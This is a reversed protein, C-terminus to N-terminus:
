PLGSLRWRLLSRSRSVDDHLGVRPLLAPDDATRVRGKRVTVGVEFTSRVVEASAADHVGRPYAFSTVSRGIADELWQKAGRIERGLDEPSCGVLERHSWTHCGVELGERAANRLRSVTAFPEGSRAYETVAFVTAPMGMDRLVPWAEEVADLWGDDFTIALMPKAGLNEDGRAWSSVRALTVVEYHRAFERAHLLFSEASVVMGPHSSAYEARGRPLVRHYMVITPRRSARSLPGLVGAANLVASAGLRVGRKM